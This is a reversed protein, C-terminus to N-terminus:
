WTEEVQPEGVRWDRMYPKSFRWLAGSQVNTANIVFRPSDPLDQLTADGLLHRRYAAAVRRGAGGLWVLGLVVASCGITRHALARVPAVMERLFTERPMAAGEQLRSWCPGLRAAVISGGSVSSIRQLGLLHGSDNLRWLVGLHFLM